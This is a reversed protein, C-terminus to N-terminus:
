WERRAAAPAGGWKAGPGTRKSIGTGEGYMIKPRWKDRNYFGTATMM